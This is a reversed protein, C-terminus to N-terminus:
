LCANVTACCFNLIFNVNSWCVASVFDNLSEEKKSFGGDDFKYTILPKSLENCYLYVTNNESGKIFYCM